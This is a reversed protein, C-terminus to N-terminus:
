KLAIKFKMIEQLDKLVAKNNIKFICPKSKGINKINMIRNKVAESIDLKFIDNMYKEPLYVTAQIYGKWASIWM